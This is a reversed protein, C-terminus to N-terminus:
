GKKATDGIEELRKTIESFCRECLDLRDIRRATDDSLCIHCVM